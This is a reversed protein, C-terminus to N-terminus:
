PRTTSPGSRACPRAATRRPPSRGGPRSARPGRPGAGTRPGARCGAAGGRRRAGFPLPGRPRPRRTAPRGTPAATPSPPARGGRCCPCRGRRRGAATGAGRAGRGDRGPRSGVRARGLADGLQGLRALREQRDDSRGLRLGRPLKAGMAFVGTCTVTVPAAPCIPYAITCRMAAPSSSPASWGTKRRRSSMSGAIPASSPTTISSSSPAWSVSTPMSGVASRLVANSPLLQASSM